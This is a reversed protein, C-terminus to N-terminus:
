QSIHSGMGFEIVQLIRLRLNIARPARSLDSQLIRLHEINQYHTSYSFSKEYIFLLDILNSKDYSPM